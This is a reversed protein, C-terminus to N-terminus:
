IHILSLYAGENFARLRRNSSRVRGTLWVLFGLAGIFLVLALAKTLVLQALRRGYYDPEPLGRVQWLTGSIPASAVVAEREDATVQQGELLTVRETHQRALVGNSGTDEIFWGYGSAPHSPVLRALLRDGTVLLWFRSRDRDAVVWHFDAADSLHLAYDVEGLQVRRVASFWSAAVTQPADLEIPQVEELDPILERLAALGDVGQQALVQSAATSKIRLSDSIQEATLWVRDEIQSVHQERVLGFDRWVEWIMLCAVLLGALVVLGISAPAGASGSRSVDTASGSPTDHRDHENLKYM